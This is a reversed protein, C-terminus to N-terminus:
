DAATEAPGQPSRWSGAVADSDLRRRLDRRVDGWRFRMSNRVIEADLEKFSEIVPAHVVLDNPSRGFANEGDRAQVWDTLRARQRFTEIQAGGVREFADADFTTKVAHSFCQEAMRAAEEPTLAAKEAVLAVAFITLDALCSAYIPWKATNISAVYIDDQFLSVYKTGMRTKLYGYLSTQAVFSARTHVFTVLADFSTLPGRDRKAAVMGAAMERLAGFVESLRSKM